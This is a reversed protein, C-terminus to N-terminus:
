ALFMIELELHTSNIWISKNSGDRVIESPKLVYARTMNSAKLQYVRAVNKEYFSRAKVLKTRQKPSEM